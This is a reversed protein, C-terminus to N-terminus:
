QRGYRVDVSEILQPGLTIGILGATRENVATRAKSPYQITLRAVDEGALVKQVLAATQVALDGDEAYVGAFAGSKVLKPSFTWVPRSGRIGWLLLAQVNAANYVEADAIMLVGHCGKDSLAQVADAFRDRHALIPTVVLDRARGAAVVADVTRKSRPSCLIGLNTVKPSFRLIAQIQQEPAIDTAVGTLRKLHPGGPALFPRDLANPVMCFVVPTDPVAQIALSAASSGVAVIVQPREAALRLLAQQGRQEADEAPASTPATSPAEEGAAEAARAAPLITTTCRHGKAALLRQITAAAEQYAPAPTLVLAVPAPEARLPGASLLAVCLCVSAIKGRSQM